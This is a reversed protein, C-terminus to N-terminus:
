GEKNKSMRITVFGGQGFNEKIDDIKKLKEPFTFLTQRIVPNSFGAKKLKEIVETVSYFKANKYFPNEEKKKVYVKGLFSERDIFGLIIFGKKKLIRKIEKFTKKLDDLFCITTAMLVFDFSNEKLPLYEGVGGIVRIGRKKAKKLMSISPDVGFEISLPEAFRGTGVGIEIGKGKSLSSKFGKLESLYAFKNSKFWKEYRNTYREFPNSELNKGQSKRFRNKM